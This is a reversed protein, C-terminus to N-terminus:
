ETFVVEGQYLVAGTPGAEPSGGEPELSVAFADFREALGPVASELSRGGNDPLLAVPHVGSGDPLVQWLQFDEDADILPPQLATVRVRETEFDAQVLWLPQGDDGMIVSVGQTRMLTDLAATQEDIQSRQQELRTSQAEVLQRADTMDSYQQNLMVGMILAAATALAAVLPALRGQQQEADRSRRHDDLDVVGPTREALAGVGAIRTASADEYPAGRDQRDGEPEGVDILPTDDTFLRGEIAHWVREPPIQPTVTRDLAAFRKEWARVSAQLGSDSRLTRAFLDRASADLTGIVYEGARIEWWEADDPSSM